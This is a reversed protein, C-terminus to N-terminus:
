LVTPKKRAVIMTIDHPAVSKIKGASKVISLPNTKRPSTTPFVSLYPSIFIAPFIHPRHRPNNTPYAVTDTELAM